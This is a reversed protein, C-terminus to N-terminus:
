KILNSPKAPISIVHNKPKQVASSDFTRNFKSSLCSSSPPLQEYIMESEPRMMLKIAGSNM